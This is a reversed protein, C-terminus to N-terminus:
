SRCRELPDGQIERIIRYRGPLQTIVPRVKQAVLKYKKKTVVGRVKVIGEKYIALAQETSGLVEEEKFNPVV